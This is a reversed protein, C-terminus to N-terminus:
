VHARGIEKPEIAPLAHAGKFRSEYRHRAEATDFSPDHALVLAGQALAVETTSHGAFKEVNTILMVRGKLSM